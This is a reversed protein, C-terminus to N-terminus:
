AHKQNHNGIEYLLQGALFSKENHLAKDEARAELGGKQM